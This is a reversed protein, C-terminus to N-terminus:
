TQLTEGVQERNPVFEKDKWWKWNVENLIENLESFTAVVFNKTEEDIPKKELNLAETFDRHTSFLKDLKDSTM